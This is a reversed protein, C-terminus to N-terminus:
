KGGSAEKMLEQCAEEVASSTASQNDDEVVEVSAENRTNPAFKKTKRQAKGRREKPPAKKQEHVLQELDNIMTKVEESNGTIEGLPARHSLPNLPLTSSAPLKNQELM